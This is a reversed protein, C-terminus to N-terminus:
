YPFYFFRFMVCFQLLMCLSEWLIEELYVELHILKVNLYVFRKFISRRQTESKKWYIEEEVRMEQYEKKLSYEGKGILALKVENEQRRVCKEAIKVFDFPDLKANKKDKEYAIDRKIVSNICENANQNYPRPPYGFGCISQLEATMTQKIIEAKYDIFYNFFEKGAPHRATWQEELVNCKEDFEQKSLCDILGKVKKGDYVSGFIDNKYLKAINGRIGLNCLKREINDVMHLDCLLHHSGPFCVQFANYLNQDGDTGFVKLNVLNPCMQLLSSPMKFYSDFSKKQHLLIPGIMVPEAHQATNLMLHRYTLITVFYNGINFTTDIGLVSFNKNSTCFKEIDSLQRDTCMFVSFEPAATVSKLFSSDRKSLDACEVLPDTKQPKNLHKINKIQQRNRPLFNGNQVKEIGGQEEIITHFVDKPKGDNAVCEKIRKKVTERTRHYPYEEHKQNGHPSVIIDKEEGDFYYQVFFLDNISSNDDTDNQITIVVRHLPLYSANQYKRRVCKKSLPSINKNGIIDIEGDVHENFFITETGMQNWRGMNDCLSNKWHGIEKESYVFSVNKNIGLPVNRAINKEPLNRAIVKIAEKTKIGYSLKKYIPLLPDNEYCDKFASDLEYEHTDAKHTSTEDDGVGPSPLDDSDSFECAYPIRSKIPSSEYDSSDIVM